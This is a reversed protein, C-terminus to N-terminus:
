NQQKPKKRKKIKNIIIIVLIMSVIGFVTNLPSFFMEALDNSTFSSSVVGSLVFLYAMLKTWRLLNNFNGQKALAQLKSNTLALYLFIGLIVYAIFWIFMNAIYLIATLSMLIVEKRIKTSLILIISFYASCDKLITMIIITSLLRVFVFFAISM